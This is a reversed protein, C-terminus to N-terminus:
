GRILESASAVAAEVMEPSVYEDDDVTGQMKRLTIDHLEGNTLGEPQPLGMVHAVAWCVDKRDSPAIDVCQSCMTNRGCAFETM